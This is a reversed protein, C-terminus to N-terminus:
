NEDREDLIDLIKRISFPKTLFRFGADEAEKQRDTGSIFVVEIDPRIRILRKATEMGDIGPMTYDMFVTDIKPEQNSSPIADLIEEGSGASLVVDHGAIRLVLALILRFDKDDDVIAVNKRAKTRPLSIGPNSALNIASEEKRQAEPGSKEHGQSRSM